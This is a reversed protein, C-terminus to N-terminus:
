AKQKQYDQDVAYFTIMALLCYYHIKWNETTSDIKLLFAQEYKVWLLKTKKVKELLTRDLEGNIVEGKNFVKKWTESLDCLM